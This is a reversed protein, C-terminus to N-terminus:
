DCIRIRRVSIEGWPNERRKIIARCDSGPGQWSRAAVPRGWPRWGPVPRDYVREEEVYRSGHYTREELFRPPLPRQEPVEITQSHYPSEVETYPEERYDAAQVATGLCLGALIGTVIVKPARM